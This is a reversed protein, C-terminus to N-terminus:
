EKSDARMRMRKYKKGSFVNSSEREREAHIFTQSKHIHKYCQALLHLQLAAPSELAPRILEWLEAQCVTRIWQWEDAAAASTLKM